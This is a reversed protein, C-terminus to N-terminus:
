KLCLKLFNILNFKEQGMWIWLQTVSLVVNFLNKFKNDVRQYDLLLLPIKYNNFELPVM